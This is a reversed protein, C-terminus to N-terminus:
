VGRLMYHTLAGSAVGLLLDRGTKHHSPDLKERMHGRLEGACGELGAGECLEHASAMQSLTARGERALDIARKVQSAQQPTLSTV